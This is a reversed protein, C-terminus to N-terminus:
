DQYIRDSPVGEEIDFQSNIILWIRFYYMINWVSIGGLGYEKILDLIANTYRADQFWVVHDTDLAKYEFYPFQTTEDFYITSGYQNALALARPNTLSSVFSEGEVYPLEWDYAIRSFGLYIKEPPIQTVAFEM